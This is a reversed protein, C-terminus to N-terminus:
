RYDQVVPRVSAPLARRFAHLVTASGFYLSLLDRDVDMVLSRTQRPQDYVGGLRGDDPWGWLPPGTEQPIMVLGYGYGPVDREFMQTLGAIHNTQMARVSAPDLIRQGRFNGRSMLMEYFRLCDKPTAYVQLGFFWNNALESSPQLRVAQPTASGLTTWVVRPELRASEEEPVLVFTNAMGLPAFIEDRLIQDISRGDIEELVAGLVSTSLGRTWATGPDFALPLEGFGRLMGRLSRAHRTRLVERHLGSLGEPVADGWAPPLGSTEALLHRIRIDRTAPRTGSLHGAPTYTCVEMDAFEPLWYPLPDDLGLRGQEIFRLAAACVIPRSLDNLRFLTDWTARSDCQFEKSDRPFTNEFHQDLQTSGAHWVLALASLHPAAASDHTLQERLADVDLRSEPASAAPPAPELEEVRADRSASACALPFVSALLLLSSAQLRPSARM